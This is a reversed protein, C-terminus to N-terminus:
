EDLPLEYKKIINSGNEFLEMQNKRITKIYGRKGKHKESNPNCPSEGCKECVLIDDSKHVLWIIDVLNKTNDVIKDLIEVFSDTLSGEPNFTKIYKTTSSLYKNIKLSLTTSWSFVDALEECFNLIKEERENLLDSKNKNGTNMMYLDTIATSVEGVEELLHFAIEDITLADVNNIYIKKLMEINEYMSDYKKEKNNVAYYLLIKKFIKKDERSMNEVKNKESLCTCAPNRKLENIIKKVTKNKLINIDINKSFLTKDKLYLKRGFCNQCFGPYKYWIINNPNIFVFPVLYHVRPRPNDIKTTIHYVFSLWWVIVNALSSVVLEWENKRVNECVDSSHKVVYHWFLVPIKEKDQPWIETINNAYQAITAKKRNSYKVHYPEFNKM